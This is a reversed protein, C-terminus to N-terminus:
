QSPVQVGGFFYAVFVVGWSPFKKIDLSEIFEKSCQRTCGQFSVHSAPFDGQEIPFVVDENISNWGTMNTKPPTFRLQELGMHIVKHEEITM